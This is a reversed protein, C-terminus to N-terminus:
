LRTEAAISPVGATDVLFLMYNGGPALNADVPATVTLTGAGKTFTLPVYRQAADFNHTVAGFRMLSVSAVRAADPTQVTFAQGYTLTAPASTIVPRPGYGLYPPSFIQASPQDTTAVVDDFRGGGMIAVRGDPLLLAESHYLRPVSMPALSTWKETTPSWLEPTLVASATATPATTTGGGTALVTGDPLMTLTHYARAFKMSEVARWAPAAAMADLVYATTAAARSPKDPDSSTGTKLVKGPSYMVSSGGDVAAGGIPSWTPTAGMTLLQSVLPARTTAAALVRGNPLLFLHPYYEFVFKATTLQTWKDQAVDYVEPTDVNCGDCNTEGAV